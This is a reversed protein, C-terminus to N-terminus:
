YEEYEGPQNFPPCYLSALDNESKRFSVAGDKSIGTVGIAMKCEKGGVIANVVHLSIVGEQGLVLEIDEKYFFGDAPGGDGTYFQIKNPKIRIYAM